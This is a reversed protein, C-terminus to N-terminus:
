KKIQIGIRSAFGNVHQLWTAVKDDKKTPTVAAIATAATTIGGLIQLGLFIWEM